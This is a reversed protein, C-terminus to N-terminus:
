SSICLTNTNAGRAVEPIYVAEFIAGDSAVLKYKRTGDASIQVADVRPRALDFTGELAGRCGAPLESLDRFSQARRRFSGACIPRARYAPEGAAEAFRTLGALPVGLLNPKGDPPPASLADLADLAQKLVLDAQVSM